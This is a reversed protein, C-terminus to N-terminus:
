APSGENEEVLEFRIVYVEQDPNWEKNIKIWEAQYAEISDYGERKASEISIWGLKETHVDLIRIKAFYTDKQFLDKGVKAQHITGVKVRQKNWIRRTETKQGFLIPYIHDPQFLIM